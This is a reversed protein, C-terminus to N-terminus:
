ALVFVMERVGLPGVVDVVITVGVWHGFVM